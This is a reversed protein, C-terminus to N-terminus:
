VFKDNFPAFFKLDIGEGHVKLTMIESKESSPKVTFYYYGRDGDWRCQDVVEGKENILDANGNAKFVCEKGGPPVEFYLTFGPKNPNPALLRLITEYGKAYYAVAKGGVGNLRHYPALKKLRWGDGDRVGHGAVGRDGQVRWRCLAHGHKCM